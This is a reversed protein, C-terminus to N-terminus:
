QLPRQVIALSAFYYTSHEPGEEIFCAVKNLPLTFGGPFVLAATTATTREPLLSRASRNRTRTLHLHDLCADVQKLSDISFDPLERRLKGPFAIEGEGLLTGAFGRAFEGFIPGIDEHDTV